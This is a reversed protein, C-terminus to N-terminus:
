WSEKPPVNCCTPYRECKGGEHCPCFCKWDEWDSPTLQNAGVGGDTKKTSAMKIFEVFRQFPKEFNMTVRGKRGGRQKKVLIDTRSYPLQEQDKTQWLFM